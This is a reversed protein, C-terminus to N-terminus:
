RWVGWLEVALNLVQLVVVAKLLRRLGRLSTISVMTYGPEIRRTMRPLEPSPHKM